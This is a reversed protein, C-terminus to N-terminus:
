CRSQMCVRVQRHLPRERAKGSDTEIERGTETAIEHASETETLTEAGRETEKERASETEFVTVIETVIEHIERVIVCCAGREIETEIEIERQMRSEAGEGQLYVGNRQPKSPGATANQSHKQWCRPM